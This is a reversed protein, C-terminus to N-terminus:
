QSQRSDCAGPCDRMIRAPCAPHAGRIEGLEVRLLAGGHFVAPRVEDLRARQQDDRARPRALGVRQRVAHRMEDHMPDIRPANEQQRERAAGGALHHPPDLAYRGVHQSVAGARDRTPEGPRAGKVRDARSQQAFVGRLDPEIPCERDMVAAIRGIQHIEDAVIEAERFGLLAERHFAGAQRDIRAGHVRLRRQLLHQAREKRPAGSPFALQALQKRGIDLGLLALVHEVVVIEQEIPRLHHRLRREGGVDALAEVVHQHVFILVGVAQLSRDKQPQLRVAVAERHHAVVRLRDVRKTGGRDAVNQIKGALEARAGFRGRELAIVARRLRDQGGGIRDDLQGLLAEALSEPRFARRGLPRLQDAHAVFGVLRATDRFFDQRVAFGPDDELRLRHQEAGGM